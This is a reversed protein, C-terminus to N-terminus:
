APDATAFAFPPFPGSVVLAVGRDVAAEAVARRYAEAAHRPILHYISVIGAASSAREDRVWNAVSPRLPLFEPPQHARALQAARARLYALGTGAPPADILSAPEMPAAPLRLNMQARHRVATLRQRLATERDRLREKLLDLSEVTTGYRAPLVASVRDFLRVQLAHYRRLRTEAPEVALRHRGVLAAVTGVKVGRLPEGALGSVRLGSADPAAVVAYVWWRM